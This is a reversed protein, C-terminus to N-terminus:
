TPSMDRDRCAASANSLRHVIGTPPLTDTLDIEVLDGPQVHLTPSELGDPTEFCFLTRGADDVTTQYNLAVHLVGNKSYLDPPAQLESGAAYRPCATGASAVGTLLMACILAAASALMRIM